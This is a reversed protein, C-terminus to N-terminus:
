EEPLTWLSTEPHFAVWAFWYGKVPIIEVLREGALEGELALGDFSWRSGTQEDVVKAGELAFTLERGDVMRDFVVINGGAAPDAAVLVPTEGVWENVAGVERVDEDLFAGYFPGNVEIGTVDDKLRLADFLEGTSDVPFLLTDDFYYDGYPEIDYDRQYGTERTLVESDPYTERWEQWTMIESPYYSLRTGTLEGAV